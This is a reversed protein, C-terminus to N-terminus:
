RLEIPNNKSMEYEAAKQVAKDNSTMESIGHAVSSRDQLKFFDKKTTKTRDKDTREINIIESPKEISLFKWSYHNETDALNLILGPLGCFKYPGESIPIESTFWAEWIRGGFDCIAKQCVYNHITDTESTIQWKFSDFPEEYEYLGMQFIHDNTNIMRINHNKYIEFRYNSIYDAVKLGGMLWEDITGDNVKKRMDRYYRYHNYEQFSNIGNNGILLIQNADKVYNLHTTDERFSLEYMVVLNATDFIEVKANFLQAKLPVIICIIIITIIYKKM